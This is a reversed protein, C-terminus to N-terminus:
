RTATRLIDVSPSEPQAPCLRLQHGFDIAGGIHLASHRGLTQRDGTFATCVQRNGQGGQHQRNCGTGSPVSLSHCLTTGASQGIIGTAADIGKGRTNFM